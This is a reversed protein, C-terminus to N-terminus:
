LVFVCRLPESDQPRERVARLERLSEAAWRVRLHIGRLLAPYPSTIVQTELTIIIFPRIKFSRLLVHITKFCISSYYVM